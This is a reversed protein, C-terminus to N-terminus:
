NGGIKFMELDVGDFFILFSVKWVCLVSCVEADFYRFIPRELLMQKVVRGVIM